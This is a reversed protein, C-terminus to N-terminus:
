ARPLRGIGAYYRQWYSDNLNSITIGQGSSAHVFFDNMLYIGVHSIRRGHIKFFVLDGERANHQDTFKICNNFQEAATRLLDIGFVDMYLKQVFASCDIGNKSCGGLRYSVGLWEDIFKYLYYNTINERSVGLVGAYKESLTNALSPDININVGNDGDTNSYQISNDDGHLGRVTNSNHYLRYNNDVGNAMMNTAGHGGLYIGEIFKPKKSNKSVTQHSEHCSFFFVSLFVTFITRQLKTRM